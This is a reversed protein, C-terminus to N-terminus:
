DYNKRIIRGGSVYRLRYTPVVVDHEDHEDNNNNNTVTESSKGGAMCLRVDCAARRSLKKVRRKYAVFVIRGGTTMEHVGYVPRGVYSM